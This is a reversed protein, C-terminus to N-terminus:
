RDVSLRYDVSPINKLELGTNRTFVAAHSQHTLAPRKPATDKYSELPLCQIDQARLFCKTNRRARQKTTSMESNNSAVISNHIKRASKNMRISSM